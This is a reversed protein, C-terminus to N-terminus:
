FHHPPYLYNIERNLSGGRAAPLWTTSGRDGAARTSCSSRQSRRSSTDWVADHCPRLRRMGGQTAAMTGASSSRTMKFTSSTATSSTAPGGQMMGVGISRGIHNNSRDVICSSSSSGSSSARDDGCFQPSSRDAFSDDPPSGSQLRHRWPVLMSLVRNSSALKHGM